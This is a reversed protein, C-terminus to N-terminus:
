PALVQGLIRRWNGTCLAALEAPTFGLRAVAALLVPIESAEALGRVNPNARVEPPRGGDDPLYECFDFGFGVRDAGMIEVAHAIHRTLGEVTQAEPEAATFGRYANIGVMGGADRIARLMDDSLNRPVPCLARCNSHTAVVPGHVAHLIEWFTKDNAHSVDVLMHLREMKELVARGLPTLGRNPDGGAGTALANEENWTLSAHRVGAAYLASLEAPDQLGALGECGLLAYFVGQQRAEELERGSHVLRLVDSSEELEQGVCDLMQQRRGAADPEAPRDVWLVLIGGEVGGRQLRSLHYRRFVQREGALRKATVDWFLDSHGDFVM